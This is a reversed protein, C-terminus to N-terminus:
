LLESNREKFPFKRDKGIPFVFLAKLAKIMALLTEERRNCHELNHSSMVADFSNSMKEIADSFESPSVLIYKDALNPKTQNYDSVDIGTYVCSPLMSKVQSPSNNGCGVDLVHPKECRIQQFFEGKLHPYMIRRYIRVAFNPKM